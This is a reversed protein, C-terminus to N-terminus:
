AVERSAAVRGAIWADVEIELFGIARTSLKIPQPFKSDEKILRYITSRSLGSKQIFAPLRNIKNSNLM